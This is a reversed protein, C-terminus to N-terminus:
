KDGYREGVGTETKINPVNKSLDRKMRSSCESCIPEEQPILVEQQHKCKSCIYIYIPM